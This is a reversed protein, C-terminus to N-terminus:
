GRPRSHSDRSGEWRNPYGTAHTLLRPSERGSPRQPDEAPADELHGSPPRSRRRTTRGPARGRRRTLRERRLRPLGVSGRAMVNSVEDLAEENTRGSHKLMQFSHDGGEVVHLHAWPGLEACIPRLLDLDALADRTGQLFLTPVNVDKLRDARAPPTAAPHPSFGFFVLGKGPLFFGAAAAQSTMREGM